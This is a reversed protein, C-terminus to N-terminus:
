EPDIVCVAQYGQIPRGMFEVILERKEFCANMTSYEGVVSIKPGTSTLLIFVLIFKM